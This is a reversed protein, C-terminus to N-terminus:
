QTSVTAHRPVYRKFGMRRLAARIAYMGSVCNFLTMSIELFSAERGEKSSTVYEVLDEEQQKTLQRKRGRRRNERAHRQRKEKPDEALAGRIQHSTYGTIKGIEEYTKGADFRLTRVRYQEEETLHRGM